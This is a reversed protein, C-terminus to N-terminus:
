TEGKADAKWYKSKLLGELREVERTLRHVEAWALDVEGQLQDRQLEAEDLNSNACAIEGDNIDKQIELEQNRKELDALRLLLGTKEQSLQAKDKALQVTASSNSPAAGTSEQPQGLEALIEQITIQSQELEALLEAEIDANAQKARPANDREKFIHDLKAREEQYEKKLRKLHHELTARANVLTHITRERGFPRTAGDLQITLKTYETYLHKYNEEFETTTWSEDYNKPTFRILDTSSTPM